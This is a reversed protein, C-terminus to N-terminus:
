ANSRVFEKRLGHKVNREKTFMDIGRATRVRAAIQFVDQLFLWRRKMQEPYTAVIREAQACIDNLSKDIM